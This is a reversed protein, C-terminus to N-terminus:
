IAIRLCSDFDDLTKPLHRPDQTLVRIDAPRPCIQCLAKPVKRHGWVDDEVPRDLVSNFNDAEDISSPVQPLQDISSILFRCTSTSPLVIRSPSDSLTFAPSIAAIM